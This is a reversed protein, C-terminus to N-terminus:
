QNRDIMIANRLSELEEYAKILESTIPHSSKEIEPQVFKHNPQKADFHGRNKFKAQLNEDLGLDLKKYINEINRLMGEKFDLLITNQYKQIILLISQYFSLLVKGFYGEFDQYHSEDPNLRFIEPELIGPIAHLGKQKAQSAMVAFPERYLIILKTEPFIALYRDLFYFHWSDLKLFLRTEIDSRSTYFRISAQLLREIKFHDYLNSMFPLRLIQDFFPVESLALNRPDESLLQSLLTSGCRSVHFVLAKPALEPLNESWELLCDLSSIVSFGSRNERKRKCKLITDDFFPDAFPIDDVFLWKVLIEGDYNGLEQPIWGYM